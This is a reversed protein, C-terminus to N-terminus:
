RTCSGTAGARRDAASLCHLDHCGRVAEAPIKRTKTLYAEAPTGELPQVRALLQRALEIKAEADAFTTEVRPYAAGM